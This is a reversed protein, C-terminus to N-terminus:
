VKCSKLNAKLSLKISSQSVSKATKIYKGLLPEVAGMQFQTEYLCRSRENAFEQSGYGRSTASLMGAHDGAALNSSNHNGPVSSLLARRRGSTTWLHSRHKVIADLM